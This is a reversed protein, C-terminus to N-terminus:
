LSRSLSLLHCVGRFFHLGDPLYTKIVEQESDFVTPPLVAMGAIALFQAQWHGPIHKFFYTQSFWGGIWTQLWQLFVGASSPYEKAGAPDETTNWTNVWATSQYNYWFWESYYDNTARSEFDAKAAAIDKDTWSKYLALPVESMDLPPIALSIPPKSPKLVAYSM